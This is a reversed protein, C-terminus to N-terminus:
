FLAYQTKYKLLDVVRCSENKSVEFPILNHKWENKDQYSNLEFLNVSFNTLEEFLKMDSCAFGNKFDFGDINLEKFIQSFDKRRTRHTIDFPHLHALISWLFCTKDINQFNLIANSRFRNKVYSSSNLEGTKYFWLKM